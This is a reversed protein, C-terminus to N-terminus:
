VVKQYGRVQSVIHVLMLLSTLKQMVSIVTISHLMSFHMLLMSVPIM